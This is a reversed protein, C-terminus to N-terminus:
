QYGMIHLKLVAVACIIAAGWCFFSNILLCSYKLVPQHIYDEIVVQAGLKAHWFLALLLALMPAASWPSALWEAVSAIEGKTMKMLSSVFWFSLPVLAVATVRQMWWHGVGEGASGLGRAVALKSRLQKM